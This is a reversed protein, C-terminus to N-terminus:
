EGAEQTVRSTRRGVARRRVLARRAAERTTRNAACFLDLDEEALRETVALREEPSMAQVKKRTSRRLDDAVSTVM